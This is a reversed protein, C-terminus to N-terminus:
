IEEKSVHKTPVRPPLLTGGFLAKFILALLFTISAAVLCALGAGAIACLAAGWMGFHTYGYTGGLFVGAVFLLFWMM